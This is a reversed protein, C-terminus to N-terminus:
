RRRAVTCVVGFMFLLLAIARWLDRLVTWSVFILLPLESRGGTSHLLHACAAWDVWSFLAALPETGECLGGLFGLGRLQPAFYRQGAWCTRSLQGKDLDSPYDSVPMVSVKVECGEAVVVTSTRVLCDSSVAM